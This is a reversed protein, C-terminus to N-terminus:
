PKRIKTLLPLGRSEEGPRDLTLNPLGTLIDDASLGLKHYGIIAKVPTRTGQIIPRGGWIGPVCTIYRYTARDAQAPTSEAVPAAPEPWRRREAELLRQYCQYAIIAVRPMGYREIVVDDGLTARGMTAGFNQQVHSSNLVITM